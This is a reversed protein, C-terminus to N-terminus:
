EFVRSIILFNIKCRSNFIDFNNVIRLRDLPACTTTKRDVGLRATLLQYAFYFFKSFLNLVKLLMKSLGPSGILFLGTTDFISIFNYVACCCFRVGDRWLGASVQICSGSFLGIGASCYNGLLVWDLILAWTIISVSM